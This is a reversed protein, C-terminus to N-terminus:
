KKVVELVAGKAEKPNTAPLNHDEDSVFTLKAKRM